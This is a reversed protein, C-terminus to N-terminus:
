MQLQSTQEGQFVTLVKRLLSLIHDEWVKSPPHLLYGLGLGIGWIWLPPDVRMFYGAPGSGQEFRSKCFEPGLLPYHPPKNM